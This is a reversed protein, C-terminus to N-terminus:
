ESPAACWSWSLPSRDPDLQRSGQLHRHPPIPRDVTGATRNRASEDRRHPCRRHGITPRRGDADIPSQRRLPRRLRRPNKDEIAPQRRDCRLVRRTGKRQVIRRLEKTPTASALAFRVGAPPAALFESVGDFLPADVVAQEVLSSYREAVQDVSADDVDNDLMESEIFRIKDYRSVGVNALHYGVVATAFASGHDDLYLDYFAETKVDASDCLTGDFDFVILDLSAEAAAQDTM